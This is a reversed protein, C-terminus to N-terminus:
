NGRQPQMPTRCGLIVEVRAVVPDWKATVADRFQANIFYRRCPALDLELERDTNGAGGRYPSHVIVKHKGPTIKVARTGYDKGDVARIVAPERYTRARYIRAGALESWTSVRREAALTAGPCAVCLALAAVAWEIGRRKPL